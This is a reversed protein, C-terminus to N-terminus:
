VEYRKKAVMAVMGFVAVALIVIYPMSDMVIGTDVDTEKNNVIEVTDADEAAIAKTTDSFNYEPADYANEGNLEGQTYDAEEVTYTM